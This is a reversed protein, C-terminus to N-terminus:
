KKGKKDKFKAFAQGVNVMLGNCNGDFCPRCIELKETTFPISVSAKNKKCIKCKFDFLNM